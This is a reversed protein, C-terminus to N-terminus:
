TSTNDGGSKLSRRREIEQRVPKRLVLLYYIALSVAILVFRLVNGHVVLSYLAYIVVGLLLFLHFFAFIWDIV